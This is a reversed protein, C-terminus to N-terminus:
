YAMIPDLDVSVSVGEEDMSEALQRSIRIIKMEETKIYIVRRYVNNIRAITCDCPGVLSVPKENGAQRIGEAFQGKLKESFASAKGYDESQILAVLMHVGPPYHLLRRYAMELEYFGEYDQEAAAAIAYHEPKYTQVVVTGPNEGRGARGAAQTILDFTREGARFDNDFLSLDALMIGVLTVNHFDHGKVIMQTGILIDYEHKLFSNLIRAHDGKKKVTDRDLRTTKAGPFMRKMEAEVKETGTGFGGILKSGCKKCVKIEPETHGCYHCMLRGGNHLTLSVDCRPCKVVEGCERCSVFSSYGRRNIFLMVQENKSLRDEILEYLRNSVMTRNGSKLEERMDVLEVESLDGEGARDPLTWLVYEGDLAKTYSEMSPTASGLIVAAGELEGRKIATERAHYKPSLESKYASDHEEDVIILKLNECPAFLASRPGIVVDAEHNKLRMFERYKEGKSLASSIVAVRKGFHQKFRAVNQYTLGIEPILVIAQGGDKVVRKICEIYVETKGSGTVGHLLYVPKEGAEYDYGFETVIAQQRDNLETVPPRSLEYEEAEKKPKVARVSAKVPMVTNLANIMTSGYTEKMWAALRVLKGECVLANSPTGIICKLKDPDFEPEDHIGVVYGKRPAKANGFPVEVLSGVTVYDYLAEPLIYEFTRDIAEHSINIIIDAYRQSM